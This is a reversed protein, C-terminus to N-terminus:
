SHTADRGTLSKFVFIDSDVLTLHLKRETGKGKRPLNYLLQIQPTNRLGM